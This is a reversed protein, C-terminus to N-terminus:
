AAVSESLMEWRLISGGKIPALVRLGVVHSIEAAAIGTGPRRVTLDDESLIEGSKLDRLAVLSQRSVRRVDQEVALVRKGGRGCISEARRILRVYEAFQAPDSSASHDPGAASRDYTLHREIITAGACVALAGCDLEITHDSYGIPVDCNAALEGIWCLNADESPTPYSSVCHLFAYDVDWEALWHASRKVEDMTAAGTSILLPRQLQAARALLPRNVLDPSAIKIAPLDLSEVLDLDGPSFPTALPILGCERAGTVVQAIQDTELEYRRLMELPHDAAICNKQYEAFQASEHLLESARFIQLKVADAGCDAAIQVLELARALSGDHNVGIEAIVFTPQGPGIRRDEIRLANM